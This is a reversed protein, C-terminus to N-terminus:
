AKAAPKAPLEIKARLPAGAKGYSNRPAVEVTCEGGLGLRSLAVSFLTPAHAQANDRSRFFGSAFACRTDSRGAADSVKVTFDQARARPIADAPPIEVELVPLLAKKVRRSGRNKAESLRVALKADKRFAPAASAAALSKMSAPKAPLPVAVDDGLLGMDGFDRREFSMRDGYVRLLMGQHGEHRPVVGMTKWANEDSDNACWGDNERGYPAFDAYQIGTYKLSGAGVSTFPGRWLFRDDGVSAHSHGSLAVANPFKSLMAASAGTDQGWLWDGHCTGKPAPHQLFFFPKSPDLTKGNKGFWDELGSNFVEDRGKCDGVTWHAGVFSFGKVEKRWVPEFDERFLEKWAKQHNHRLTHKAWEGGFQAKAAGGYAHGAWDHNGFIFLKEVPRGGSGKGGPFVDDWAKALVALEEVLGHDAIDGCIAVADVGEGDFWALAKRLMSEGAFSVEGSKKSVVRALHVDSLIGLTLRPKGGPAGAAAFPFMGAAGLSAIGGLFGRRTMEAM